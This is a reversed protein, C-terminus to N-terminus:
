PQWLEDDVTRLEPVETRIWDAEANRRSVRRGTSPDKIFRQRDV